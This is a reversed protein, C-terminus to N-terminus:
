LWKQFICYAVPLYYTPCVHSPSQPSDISKKIHISVVLQVIKFVIDLMDNRPNQVHM